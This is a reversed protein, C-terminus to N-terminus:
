ASKGKEMLNWDVKGCPCRVSVETTGTKALRLMGGCASCLFLDCLDHFAEVVPRFDQLSFQAWKNYHVSANVAWQEANTRQHVQGMTSDLERLREFWEENGWSQAAKKAKRLLQGCQEVAAPLFHGLELRGDLRYEVRAQLADCVEAFFEESGRRLRAAAGPIDNKQLDDEIREWMDAEFSVRPGTDLNWSYFEVTERSRVVCESKLQNAWTRDHTTILFQREPFCTSLLQCVQRRHDADVSMVVDDLILLNLLGGSLREALALYLCLGMSDQHGESHLAHPPHTGRGYFDVELKLGAQEPEITATFDGEDVGHLRRYLDVFRDRIDDYLRGLVDDRAHLFSALLLSARRNFLEANRLRTQTEELAKLNEELRTLADWANQEPTAEPYKARVAARVCPLMTDIDGPALMRQVQDQGLRPLPYTEVPADLARRLERLDGRWSGLAPMEEELHVAGAAAVLKDVSALTNDVLAALSSGLETTRTLQEGALRAASLKQQLHEHLQGQPWPTDCLPCSGSEDILSLGQKTLQLRDLAQLLQPDARIAAVSARLADDISAVQAQTEQRTVQLLNAMDNELLTVNVPETGSVVVPAKIGTKLETSCLTFIPAGGLLARNRNVVELVAGESFVQQQVKANLRGKESSVQSQASQLEKELDNQVKVLAKRIDEVEAINLLEQIGQARTSADATVYKLIERRTLVHQGRQALVLIPELCPKFQPDCELIDPKAMCRRIEIPEAIQPLRVVARVRAQGPTHGIHPGHKSLTIGGTGKGVLRSIRGTLVFDIADVVASKGSGNPGWIVMNKGAPDLLLHRIGRVNEIELELLRM